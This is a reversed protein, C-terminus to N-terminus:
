DFRHVTMGNTNLKLSDFINEIHLRKIRSKLRFTNVNSYVTTTEGSSMNRYEAYSRVYYDKDALNNGGVFLVAYMGSASVDKAAAVICSEPSDTLTDPNDSLIFGASIREYNGVIADAKASFVASLKGEARKRDEASLRQLIEDERYDSTTKIDEAEYELKDKSEFKYTIVTNETLPETTYTGSESMNSLVTKDNVKIWSLISNEAPTYTLSVTEGGMIKMSGTKDFTGNGSGSITVDLVAFEATLKDTLLSNVSVVYEGCSLENMPLSIEIKNDETLKEQKVMYFDNLLGSYGQLAAANNKDKYATIGVNTNVPLDTFTATVNINDGSKDVSIQGSAFATCVGFFIMGTIVSALFRKYKM